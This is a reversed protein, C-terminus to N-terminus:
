ELGRKQVGALAKIIGHFTQVDQASLGMRLLMNRLSRRMTPRLDESRFFAGQDLASELRSFLNELQAHSAPAQVDQPPIFAKFNESETECSWEYGVALVAQALNISPFEPNVPITLAAHCLSLDDNTLGAREPGFVFATKQAEQARARSDPIAQRPLFVPKAMDRMRATTGYVYHCDALAEPLTEFIRAEMRELAGAAMDIAAQNPWGDRPAVIRLDTLGFNLMARAAAGINEGMQPRVLIIVPSKSTQIM